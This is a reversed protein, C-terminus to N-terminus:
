TINWCIEHISRQRSKNGFISSVVPPQITKSIVAAPKPEPSMNRWQPTPFCVRPDGHFGVSGLQFVGWDVHTHSIPTHQFKQRPIDATIQQCWSPLVLRGLTRWILIDHCRITPGPVASSHITGTSIWARVTGAAARTGPKASKSNLRFALGILM